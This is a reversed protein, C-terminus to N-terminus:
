PAPHNGTADIYESFKTNPTFSYNIGCFYDQPVVTDANSNDFGDNAIFLAVDRNAGIAEIYVSARSATDVALTPFTVDTVAGDLHLLRVEGDVLDSLDVVGSVTAETFTTGGGGSGGPFPKIDGAPNQIGTPNGDEDFVIGAMNQTGTPPSYFMVGLARLAGLIPDTFSRM